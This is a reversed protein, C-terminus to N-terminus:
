SSVVFLFLMLADGNVGAGVFDVVNVFLLPSSPVDVCGGSSCGSVFLLFPLVVVGAAVVFSLLADPLEMALIVIPAGMAAVIVPM